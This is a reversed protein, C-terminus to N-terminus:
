AKACAEWGAFAPPQHWVGNADLTMPGNGSQGPALASDNPALGHCPGNSTPTTASATATLSFTALALALLATILKRM